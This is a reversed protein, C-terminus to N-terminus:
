IKKVMEDYIDDVIFDQYTYNNWVEQAKIAQSILMYLGNMTKLGYEKAYKLFLTEAPNYVIDFACVFNKFLNKDIVCENIKPFMGVPTTNVVGFMDKLKDIDKYHIFNDGTKSTSAIYIKKAKLRNLGDIISKSGGGYGLVLWNKDDTELELAQISKVFGFSDTNYGHLKEEAINLTNIAGIISAQKTISEVFPIVKEKYPITVNIGNYGSKVLEKLTEELKEENPIEVLDYSSHMKVMEFFMEHITKSYSHKLTKGILCQKM